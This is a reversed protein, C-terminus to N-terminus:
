LLSKLVELLVGNVFAPHFLLPFPILLCSWIWIRKQIITWNKTANKEYLVLLAQITFYLFPLGFYANVPLSLAVEHFIGSVIFSLFLALQPKGKRALPKFITIRTMEIFAINWHKGWFSSLSEAKYPTEMLPNLHIGFLSWFWAAVNFLGTHFLMIFGAFSLLGILYSPLLLHKLLYALMYLVSIGIAISLIGSKLISTNNKIKLANSKEWPLPDMGAWGLTFLLWRFFSLRNNGQYRYTTAVIKMGIFLLFILVLMKFGPSEDKVFLYGTTILIFPLIWVLTRGIKTKGAIPIFYGACIAIAALIMWM